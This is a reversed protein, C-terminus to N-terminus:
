QFIYASKQIGVRTHHEGPKPNPKRGRKKPEDKLKVPPKARVAPIVKKM